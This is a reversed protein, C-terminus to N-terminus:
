SKNKENLSRYILNFIYYQQFGTDVNKFIQMDCVRHTNKM